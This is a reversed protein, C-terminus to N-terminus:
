SDTRCQELEELRRNDLKIHLNKEQTPIVLGKPGNKARRLFKVPTYFLDGEGNNRGKSYFLALNGADLLIDLPVTKGPRAKIFVYSGPYDRAHLWLDSGKVHHRLLDDNEAGDRGVILMWGHRLFTLGPRKKDVPKIVQREKQLARHLRLPNEESLLRTLEAELRKTEAEGREIEEAVESLGTKAKHYQEYYAEANAQPSKLPDLKIRVQEDNYFNIGEFWPDGTKIQHLNAMLIDGYEKLTNGKEYTRQKERLRELSAALRGLRGEYLKRVQDRLAELSLAGGHEAYYADLKENFTGSGELCRVEYTRQPRAPQESLTDAGNTREPVAKESATPESVVEPTYRGGTIEGRRPSRRMVDLITGETDTVIVNAANSWLRIYMRYQLEGRQITFRVIRDEGLQVAETIWGNVLRSKIFEAFRLPKEPKPVARYTAHLRCAGPTLAVLLTTAKGEKYLQLALVDYASQIVRQIQSGALNLESLVLNIEKWNLSM